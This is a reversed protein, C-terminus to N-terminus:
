KYVIDSYFEELEEIISEAKDKDDPLSENILKALGVPDKLLSLHIGFMQMIGRIQDTVQTIDLHQMAKEEIALLAKNCLELDAKSLKYEKLLKKSGIIDKLRGPTVWMNERLQSFDTKEQETLDKGELLTRTAIWMTYETDDTEDVNVDPVGLKEKKEKKKPKEEESDENNENSAEEWEKDDGETDLEETTPEVLNAETDSVMDEGKVPDTNNEDINETPLIEKKTDAM